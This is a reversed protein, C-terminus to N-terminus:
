RKVFTAEMLMWVNPDLMVDSPPRDAAIEFRQQKQTMDIKEIRMPAGVSDSPVGIEMPLRYAQGPQTQALQVVIKKATPDYSWLGNLVPADVRTLWQTFFWQLDQGSGTEMAHRLDDTTAHADRYTKYYLQIGKWFNETGVQGRLVHLVWGGKQYQVQTLDPGTAKDNQHVVAKKVQREARFAAVRGRTMANVFADRGSFHETYLDAFYTAFGESLWVDDWEDETVSDGFWQHATEHSSAGRPGGGRGGGRGAGGARGGGGAGGRGAGAANPDPPREGNRTGGDGYYIESAHEMAGGGFPATVNALKEYAYPGINESFFELAQRASPEFGAPATESEQHAVWTQLEVGKVYGGHHMGFQEVGLANLWAAIPVSEKWHTLKRGDGLAVERQLLGNAVVSYHDPATVVFESTAKSSPHDITPLWDHAHDPWNWSFFAREHYKNMGIRLGDGPVGHYRVTFRREEGARSPPAVTITVRNNAHSYRVSAGNASDANVATVTMGKGNAVSSLDLFFSSLGARTFRTTVTTEGAIDDNADTLTVGFVYHAIELGPQRQYHQQPAALRSVSMTVGLWMSISRRM